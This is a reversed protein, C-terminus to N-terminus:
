LYIDFTIATYRYINIFSPMDIDGSFEYIGGVKNNNAAYRRLGKLFAKQGVAQQLPTIPTRFSFVVSIILIIHIAQIQLM